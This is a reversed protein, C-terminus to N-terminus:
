NKYIFDRFIKVVSDMVSDHDNARSKRRQQKNCNEMEIKEGSKFEEDPLSRNGDHAELELALSPITMVPM